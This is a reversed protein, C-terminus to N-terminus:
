GRLPIHLILFGVVLDRADSASNTLGNCELGKHGNHIKGLGVTQRQFKIRRHCGWGLRDPTCLCGDM